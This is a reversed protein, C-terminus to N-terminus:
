GCGCDVVPTFTCSEGKGLSVSRKQYPKAKSQEDFTTSCSGGSYKAPDIDCCPKEAADIKVCEMDPYEDGEVPKMNPYTMELFPWTLTKRCTIKTRADDPAKSNRYGCDCEVKCATGDEVTGEQDVVPPQSTRM